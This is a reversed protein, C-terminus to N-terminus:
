EFFFILDGCIMIWFTYADVLTVLYNKKKLIEFFITNSQFTNELSRNSYNGYQIIFPKFRLNFYTLPSFLVNVHPLGRFNLRM